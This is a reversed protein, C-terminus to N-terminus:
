HITSLDKWNGIHHTKGAKRAAPAMGDRGYIVAQGGGTM